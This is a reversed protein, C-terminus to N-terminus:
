SISIIVQFSITILILNSYKFGHLQACLIQIQYSYKIDCLQICSGGWLFLLLLSIRLFSCEFILPFLCRM